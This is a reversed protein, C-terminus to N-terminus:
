GTRVPIGRETVAQILAFPNPAVEFPIRVESGDRLVLVAQAVEGRDTVRLHSIEDAAVARDGEAAMVTWQRPGLRLGYVPTVALQAVSVALAPVLLLLVYGSAVPWLAAGLCGLGIVSFLSLGLSGPRASILRTQDM